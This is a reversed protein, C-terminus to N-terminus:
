LTRVYESLRERAQNATEIENMGIAERQITSMVRIMLSTIDNVQQNICNDCILCNGGKGTDYEQGCKACDIM